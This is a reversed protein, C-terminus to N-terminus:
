WMRAPPGRGEVLQRGDAAEVVVEFGLSRLLVCLMKRSNM